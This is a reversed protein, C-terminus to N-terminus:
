VVANQYCAECYVIEPREPAFSTEIEKGCKACNRKWLRPPNIRSMRDAHRCNPCKRALPLGFRKLLGIEAPVLRFAKGCASCGLNEKLIEDTVELISDPMKGPPLTIEHGSREGEYWRFGRDLAEEKTLPYFQIAHVENYDFLSLDYPFFEGYKWARNKSDIYPEADMKKVIEARLTEYEERSYQKNLICYQKKRINLCGFMHSSNVVYMCYDLDSVTAWSALSFRVRDAGEGTAMCDYIRQAGAGWETYDYVDKAGKLTIFQCYKGDEVYRAQYVDHANKSEWVYDGSVNTNHTGQLSKHPFKKWFARAEVKKAQISAHSDLQFEKLKAEYEEKSYPENWIHYSKSRLNACGFCNSCGSMNKSFYVDTCSVCDESFFTKYCKECNVTEYCLESSELLNMDMSDKSNDVVVGYLVNENFDSNFILYCNKANGTHNVYESNVLTSYDTLLAMYPTKQQLEKFQDFFNRSADYDLAYSGPDWKDSWWCPQCYVVYPKDPAFITVVSKGCLGCDRKYFVRENRFMLRRQFRCQPCFTPPPVSMKQYFDFDPPEIVFPQRCNQCNRTESDM